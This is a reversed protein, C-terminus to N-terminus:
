LLGLGFLVVAILVASALSELLRSQWGFRKDLREDIIEKLTLKMKEESEVIRKSYHAPIEDKIAVRFSPITEEEMYDQFSELKLVRDSLSRMLGM